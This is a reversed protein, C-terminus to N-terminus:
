CFSESYHMRFSLVTEKGAGVLGHACRHAIKVNEFSECLDKSAEGVGDRQEEWWKHEGDDDVTGFDETWMLIASLDYADGLIGTAAQVLDTFSLLQFSSTPFAFCFLM